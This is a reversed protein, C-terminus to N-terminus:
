CFVLRFSPKVAASLCDHDHVAVNSSFKRLLILRVGILGVVHVAAECVVRQGKVDQSSIADLIVERALGAFSDQLAVQRRVERDRYVSRNFLVEAFWDREQLSEPVPESSPWLGREVLLTTVFLNCLM